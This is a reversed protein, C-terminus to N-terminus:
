SSGISSVCPHRDVRRQRSQDLLVSPLVQVVPIADWSPRVSGKRSPWDYEFCTLVDLSVSVGTLDLLAQYQQRVRQSQESSPNGQHLLLNLERAV